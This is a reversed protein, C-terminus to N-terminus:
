SQVFKEFLGVVVVVAPDTLVDTKSRVSVTGCPEFKKERKRKYKNCSDAIDYNKNIPYLNDSRTAVSIPSPEVIEM